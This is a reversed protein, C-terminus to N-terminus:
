TQTASQQSTEYTEFSALRSNINEGQETLLLLFADTRYSHLSTQNCDSFKWSFMDHIKRQRKWRRVKIKEDYANKEIVVQKRYNEFDNQVHEFEQQCKEYTKQLKSYDLNIHVFAQNREHLQQKLEECSSSLEQLQQELQRKMNDIERNQQQCAKDYHAELEYYKGKILYLDQFIKENEDKASLLDAKLKQIQNNRDELSPPPSFHFIILLIDIKQM